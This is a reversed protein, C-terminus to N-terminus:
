NHQCFQACWLLSFLSIRRKEKERKATYLTRNTTCLAVYEPFHQTTYYFGAIAKGKLGRGRWKRGSNLRIKEERGEGGIWVRILHTVAPFAFRSTM